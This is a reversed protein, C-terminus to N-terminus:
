NYYVSVTLEGGFWDVVTYHDSKEYNKEEAIKFLQLVEEFERNCVEVEKENNKIYYTNM